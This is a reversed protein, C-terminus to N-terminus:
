SIIRNIVCRAKRVIALHKLGFGLKKQVASRHCWTKEFLIVNPCQYASPALGIDHVGGSVNLRFYGDEGGAADNLKDVVVSIEEKDYPMVIQYEALARNLRVLHEQLLFVEGRYTRFTEFFGVGYLFGHDFPSIMLDEARVFDGNMWCLMEKM